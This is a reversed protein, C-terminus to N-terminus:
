SEGFTRAVALGGYNLRRRDRCIGQLATHSSRLSHLRIASVDPASHSCLMSGHVEDCDIDFRRIGVHSRDALDAEDRVLIADDHLLPTCVDIRLLIEIADVHRDMPDIFRYNSPRWRESAQAALKERFKRSCNHNAVRVEISNSKKL